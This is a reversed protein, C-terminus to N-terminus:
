SLPVRFRRRSGGGGDGMEFALWFVLALFLAFTLNEM